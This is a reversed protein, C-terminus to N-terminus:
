TCNGTPYNFPPDPISILNGALLGQYVAARMNYPLSTYGDSVEAAGKFGTGYNYAAVSQAQQTADVASRTNYKVSQQFFPDLALATFIIIAGISALSRIHLKSLFRLSGFPGRSAFDYYVADELSRPRTYWLWSFQSISQAVPALLAARFATSIISIITNLTVNGLRGMSWEPYPRGDYVWLIAAIGFLSAAVLGLCALENVLSGISLIKQEAHSATSGTKRGEKDAGRNEAELFLHTDGSGHPGGDPPTRLAGDVIDDNNSRVFAM